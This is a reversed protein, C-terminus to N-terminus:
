IMNFDKVIRNPLNQDFWHWIDFRYTGKEWCYFDSEIEDDLNFPIDAFASWMKELDPINM